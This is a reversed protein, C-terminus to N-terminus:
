IAKITEMVLDNKRYGDVQSFGAFLDWLDRGLAKTSDYDIGSTKMRSLVMSIRKLWELTKQDRIDISNLIFIIETRFREVCASLEKLNYDDLANPFEDFGIGIRALKKVFYERFLKQDVLTDHVTYEYGGGALSLMIAICDEKFYKYHRMLSRKFRRRKVSEPVRVVLWYFFLSAVSGTSLDYLLKFRTASWVFCFSNWSQCLENRIVPDEQFLFM